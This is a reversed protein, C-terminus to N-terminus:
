LEAELKTLATRQEDKLENKITNAYIQDFCSGGSVEDSCDKGIVQERVEALLKLKETRIISQIATKATSLSIHLVYEHKSNDVGSEMADYALSRLINDLEDIRAELAVRKRDAKSM